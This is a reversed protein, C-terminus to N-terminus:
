SPVARQSAAAKAQQERRRLHKEFVLLFVTGSVCAAITDALPEAYFAARAGGFVPLILTLLVFSGKRFLSLALSTKTRALATLGDVRAYQVALPIIALTFVRLGWASLEALAADATFIRVVQGALLQFVVFLVATFGLCMRLVCRAAQRVRDSQCAGYNYSIIAQTGSSIGLMPGTILSMCSQVITACAILLDGQQPGGYRQLVANMAILILSDTAMILFPSFGIAAVRLMLRGNPRCLGIRIPARCFLFWVTFACSLFQALVTAAAAGAVGMDLAFIFVPDLLINAVAGILVAAMGMTSFGQCTIFYNLGVAMLAFFTGATYITMYTDAYGFTASSAGFCLLLPRRCLLFSVTLVASLGTLMLFCNALVRRAAENNGEGMRIAMLISGGLGVLTGFSSLLTVIPGCVGVGALALDGIGPINGIYVRDILSYLVNVFQAIMAPIALGLVLRPVPARGLDQGGKM